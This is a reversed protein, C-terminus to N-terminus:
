RAIDLSDRISSGSRTDVNDKRNCVQRVLNALARRYRPEAESESLRTM